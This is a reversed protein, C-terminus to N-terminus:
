DIQQATLGIAGITLVVDVRAAHAAVGDAYQEPTPAFIVEFHQAIQDRDAQTVPNMIILLPPSPQM